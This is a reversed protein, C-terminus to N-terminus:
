SARAATEAPWERWADLLPFYLGLRIPCRDLLALVRAYRELQQRYRRQEEDLFREAGAGEHFSTKYDIIWRTGDDDVFTRDIVLNRIEAGEGASLALENAAEPRPRLIWRGREGALTAELAAGVKAAAAELEDEPVGLNCLMARFVPQRAALADPTWVALGDEAIARLWAHVAVGVSRATEGVWEFTPLEAPEEATQPESRHWDVSPPAGPVTFEAPLRRLVQPRRPPPEGPVAAAAPAAPPQQVLPWLRALFSRPVPNKWEAVGNRLTTRASGFLHLEQKARTAAVYLLRDTEHAAKTKEVAALYRHIADEPAGSAAIPAAILRPAGGAPFESWALLKKPDTRPARHLGPVLVVDWELGKAKFVTLVELKDGAETDPLAYLEAMAGDLADLDAIDGGSEQEDLIQLFRRVNEMENPSGLASPGGLSLWAAEVMRPVSTKGRLALAPALAERFRELRRASDAPLLPGNSEVLPWVPTRTDNAALTCLDSLTLGCWPARLIALWATRDAPHLLARTLALLDRVEPREGLPDIDVARFRIDRRKLEEVIHTLHTRARVLVAVKAEPRRRRVEELTDAVEKAEDEETADALFHPVVASGEEGARYPTSRNYPVSGEAADERAPFVTEFTENVWGTLNGTSRFNVELSGPEVPLAGIGQRWVDLFLGVEAQRFRYISQMPDGVLFLTRGEGAEWGATLRLLLEMQSASTDQFEDILIHEVRCGFALGLDTPQEVPGLAEIAALAIEAFDAQGRQQFVLKLQAAAVPLLRLLTGLINWQEESYRTPPLMSLGTLRGRFVTQEELTGLLAEMAQKEATKPPFGQKVTLRRRWAGQGTLMLGALAEWANRDAVTSGPMSRLELRGDPLQSAAFRALPVLEAELGPPMSERLRELHRCVVWELNEELTARLRQDSASLDFVGFLRLWQDRTALLGALMNQAQDIRNDLHRALAAVEAAYPGGGDILVLTEAAAERYLGTADEVFEPM